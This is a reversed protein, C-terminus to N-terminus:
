GTEATDRMSPWVETFLSLYGNAGHATFWEFAEGAATRAEPRDPMLEGYLARVVMAWLTGDTAECLDIAESFHRVAEDAKGTLAARAARAVRDISVFRKGVPVRDKSWHVDLRDVDRLRIASWLPVVWVHAEPLRRDEPASAALDFAGVNDGRLFLLLSRQSGVWDDLQPEQTDPAANLYDNARDLHGVAGTLIWKLVEVDAATTPRWWTQEGLELSELLSVAEEFRGTSILNDAKRTASRVIYDFVGIRAAIEHFRDVIEPSSLRGNVAGVVLFNNLARAEAVPSGVEAALQIAGALLALAEYVRGLGSVATGRTNLSEVVVELNGTAEAAVLVDRAVDASRQMESALMYARSLQAGLLLMEPETARSAEFRPAMVSVADPPREASLIALGLIRTCRIVDAEEGNAEQWALAARGLDIAAEYSAIQTAALSGLELLAVRGTEDGPIELAQQVLGLAQQHSHLDFARQAAALMSNRATTSLEEDPGTELASLYHSAVIAASEALGISEYHRAVAIHRRKRDQRSLRGYTVERIVSQVFQYQGREPSRPDDDLHLVEERVLRALSEEITEAPSDSLVRLADATFSQGLVAADQIIAREDPGLRDIRSAVVAHLSDPVTLSEVDSIQRYRDGDRVLDGSAVLTRVYEVAYLPVGAAAGVVLEVTQNEIGPAMGGVLSRMDVEALPGLHASMFGRRATGWDPHRELLAPRGLTVVLIPHSSSREVLEVIFDLLGEDAWHLDEFVLVAPGRRAVHQFFTRLAAFLDARDGVPMSDLGLLGAVRPTVWHTTEADEVFEAVTTQLKTRAKLPDDTEAIRARQRIMESLAWFTVGDGYAPSRGQHWYFTEALGDVYKLLEWALRSKGIGGEGIISVLRARGEHATAHLQDKLLRLEYERGVFPPELGDSRRKGGREAVIEVARWAAIPGAKGKLEHDGAREFRISAGTLEKTSDGVFVSGPQAVSQLRAATNVIDGVVMGTENGGSGVSTEGSLVGARLALGPIGIDHGLEDIADVLEIAARVAREADDELAVRTGWFATVADGIFKEVEGGFREIIQQARDFYRTLMARVEEPDHEETLTTFGVLDAFLVSVFRREGSDSAPTERPAAAAPVASPDALGTGCNSCFKFEPQNSTGCSPCVRALATGCNSCFKFGEQNRTGCAACIM